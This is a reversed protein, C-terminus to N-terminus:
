STVCIKFYIDCKFNWPFTDCSKGSVLKSRTNTYDVAVRLSGIPNKLLDACYIIATLLLLSRTLM